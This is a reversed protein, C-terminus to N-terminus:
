NDNKKKEILPKKAFNRGLGAYGAGTAILTTHLSVGLIQLNTFDTGLSKDVSPLLGALVLMGIGQMTRSTINNKAFLLIDKFKM